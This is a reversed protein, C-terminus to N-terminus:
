IEYDLPATMWVVRGLVTIEDTSSDNYDYVMPRYTPDLSDPMLEYGNALKRVRKITAAYGNVCVAYASSGDPEREHPYVLALCGDPLTRNMSGGDVRLLFCDRYRRAISSPVPFKDEVEDMDIPNGAAISGLLPVDTYDQRAGGPAVTTHPDDTMGLLYSATCGFIECLKTIYSGKVDRNGYEYYQYAQQTIGLLDAVQQQTLNTLARAEAIRNKTKKHM